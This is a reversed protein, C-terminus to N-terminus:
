CNSYANHRRHGPYNPGRGIVIGSPAADREGKGASENM